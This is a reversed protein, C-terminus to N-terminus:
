YLDFRFQGGMWTLLRTHVPLWDVYPMRYHNAFWDEWQDGDIDPEHECSVDIGSATWTGDHQQDWSEVQATLKGGCIPCCEVAKPIAIPKHPRITKM